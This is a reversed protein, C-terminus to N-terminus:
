MFNKRNAHQYQHLYKVFWAIAYDTVKDLKGPEEFLHSAGPIITLQKACQLKDFAKENLQIVQTDFGGVLLLTPSKVNSLVDMALDPRGGRSVVAKIIDSGLLAAGRLASAAGTSAGFYGININRVQPQVGIWETTAILRDTLLEINFRKSYDADEGPTLLDFLLTSLGHQQLTGAVFRNRPSLRSSGSGHSFLILGKPKKVLTLDGKLMSRGAPIDVKMSNMPPNSRKQGDM